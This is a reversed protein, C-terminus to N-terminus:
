ESRDRSRNRARERELERERFQREEDLKRIQETLAAFGGAVKELLAREVDRMYILDERNEQTRKEVLKTMNEIVDSLYMRRKYGLWITWAGGALAAVWGGLWFLLVLGPETSILELVLTQFFQM